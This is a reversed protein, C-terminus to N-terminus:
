VNTEHACFGGLWGVASWGLLISRFTRFRTLDQNGRSNATRGDSKSYPNSRPANLFKLYNGSMPKTHASGM